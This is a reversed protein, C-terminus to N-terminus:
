LGSAPGLPGWDFGFSALQEEQEANTQRVSDEGFVGEHITTQAARQLTNRNVVLVDFM